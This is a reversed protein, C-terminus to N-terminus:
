LFFLIIVLIITAVSIILQAIQFTKQQSVQSDIQALIINLNSKSEKEIREALNNTNAKMGKELDSNQRKLKEELAVDLSRISEATQQLGVELIDISSEIRQMKSTIDLRQFENVLQIVQKVLMDVSNHVLVTTKVALVATDEAEEIKNIADKLTSLANELDLLADSIKSIDEM